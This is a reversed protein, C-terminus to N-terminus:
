ASWSIPASAGSKGDNSFELGAILPPPRRHTVLLPDAAPPTALFAEVLLDPTQDVFLTGAGLPRCRPDLVLSVLLRWIRLADAERRARAELESCRSARRSGAASAMRVTQDM